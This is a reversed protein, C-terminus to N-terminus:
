QTFHDKRKKFVFRLPNGTIYVVTSGGISVSAQLTLAGILIAQNNQGMGIKTALSIIEQLSALAAQSMGASVALTLIEDYTQPGGEVDEVQLMAAAISLSIAADMAQTSSITSDLSAVFSVLEVLVGTNGGSQDATIGLSLGANMEVSAARSEDASVALEVDEEFTM